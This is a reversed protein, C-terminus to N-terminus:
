AHGSPFCFVSKLAAKELSVRDLAEDELDDFEEIQELRTDSPNNM